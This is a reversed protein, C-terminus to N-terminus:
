QCRNSGAQLEFNNASLPKWGRALLNQYPTKPTAPATATGVNFFYDNGSQGCEADALPNVSSSLGPSIKRWMLVLSIHERPGQFYTLHMPLKTSTDMRVTQTACQMRTPHAGENELINEFVGVSNMLSMTSGDDSLVALQYDGASDGPGLQLKSALDLAFWEVLVKTTSTGIATGNDSAFGTSFLRTPVFLRNLFLDADVKKGQAILDTSSTVTPQSSELYHISGKLGSTASVINSPDFPDCVTPPTPVNGLGNNNGSKSLDNYMKFEAPSCAMLSFLSVLLSLQLSFNKATSKLQYM